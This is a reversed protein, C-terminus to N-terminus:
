LSNGIDRYLARRYGNGLPRYYDGLVEFDRTRNFNMIVLQSYLWM